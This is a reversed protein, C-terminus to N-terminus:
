AAIRQESALPMAIHVTTGRSVESDIVITGGHQEVIQKVTPLGLGTGFSKTSFFPEFVRALVEEAIGPGTDSIVIILQGAARTSITIKRDPEPLPTLAQAANDVLNIIVRRFRDPDLDVVADPAQLKRELTIGDALMQEDLVEGLWQDFPTPRRSVQGARSYDLLGSVLDDCRTISREIRSMPRDVEMGKDATMERLLPVTTSIVGLPNRLEHAVTATLQGLASLHTKRLLEAEALARAAEAEAKETRATALLENHRFQRVCIFTIAGLVLVLLVAAGTLFKAERRWDALADAVTTTLMVVFPYHALRHAVIVREEGDISGIQRVPGQDARSLINAPLGSQPYSPAAAPEVHPHRALLMGDSRFLSISSEKALAITAFFQEFYEMEMAGLVLGLFEGDPAALKRVLHITWTGTARNRVPQGMFSKLQANSKLAQFFDRDVVTIDPIPWFRSFNFLRGESNILTISGIHLWGSTKEKLMLHVEHGSMRREFDEPSAIGLAQMREILSDELLEVTQFARDTQEALVLAVNRLERQSSDLAHNRLNLIIISTSALVAAAVLAGALVLM